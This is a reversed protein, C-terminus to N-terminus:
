LCRWKPNDAIVFNGDREIVLKRFGKTKITSYDHGADARYTYFQVFPVEGLNVSRHAFRKPVYAMKGPTLVEYTCDGEPNEMLILGYGSVCLYIEATELIAHFHGKTMFYEDGVKGPYCITTGFALDGPHEPVGMEYFEYVLIDEKKIMEELATEDATMGRLDSLYRKSSVNGESIGTESIFSFVSSKDV